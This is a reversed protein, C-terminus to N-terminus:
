RKKTRPNPPFDAPDILMMEPDYLEPPFPMPIEQYPRGSADRGPTGPRASKEKLEVDYIYKIWPRAQPEYVLSYLEVSREFHKVADRFLKNHFLFLGLKYARDADDIEISSAKDLHRRAREELANEKCWLGLKYQALADDEPSEKLKEGYIDEKSKSKEISKIRERDYRVEMTGAGLRVRLKVYKETEETIKGEVRGQPKLYIADAVVVSSFSLALLIFGVALYFIRTM